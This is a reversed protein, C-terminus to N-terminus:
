DEEYTGAVRFAEVGDAKVWFISGCDPCRQMRVEVTGYQVERYTLPTDVNWPEISKHSCPEM